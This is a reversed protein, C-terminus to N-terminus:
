RRTSRTPRTCGGRRSEETASRPRSGSSRPTPGSLVSLRAREGRCALRRRRRFAGARRRPGDCRADLRAAAGLDAARARAILRLADDLAMVGALTAAVYEGVSHGIMAAPEIGWSRWLEALAYGVTFLAPQAWRTDKLAEAAKKRTGHGRSVAGQASRRRTDPKLVRACDTSPAACSRSATRVPRAAMGPYQAGQGPFMFVVPPAPRRRRAAVDVPACFGDGRRGTTTARRGCAPASLRPSRRAAHLRRRRSRAGSPARPPRCGRRRM